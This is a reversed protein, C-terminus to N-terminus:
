HTWCTTAPAWRTTTPRAPPARRTTSVRNDPGLIRYWAGDRHDVFHAWAYAWIREYWEWYAADATRACLVAAAAITEAQVWFYKDGDCWPGDPAFGYVLGGHDKDWGHKIAAEFLERRAPAALDRAAPARDAAAAQGMRGPTRAPIGLPSVFRRGITRNYDWDVSRDARYHEWVLGQAQAALGVTM